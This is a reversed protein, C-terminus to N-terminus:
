IGRIALRVNRAALTNLLGEGAANGVRRAQQEDPVGGSFQIVVAGEEVVVTPEGRSGSASRGVSRATTMSSSGSLLVDMLGSQMALERARAPQSLPLVVEPGAEGIIAATARNVIGGDAFFNFLGGGLGSPLSPIDSIASALRRAASRMNEFLSAVRLGRDIIGKITGILDIGSKRLVQISERLARVGAAARQMAKVWPKVIEILIRIIIILLNIWSRLVAVAVRVALVALEATGMEPDVDEVLVLVLKALERALNVIEDWLDEFEDRLDALAPILENQILPWLQDRIIPVVNDKIWTWIVRLIGVLRDNHQIWLDILFIIGEVVFMTAQIAFPLLELMLDMFVGGLQEILPVMAETLRRFADILPPLAAEAIALWAQFVPLLVAAIGTAQAEIAPVLLEVIASALNLVMGILAAVPELLPSVAKLLSGLAGGLIALHPSLLILADSLDEMFERGGSDVLAILADAIGDFAAKAGPALAEVLDALPATLRGIAVAAAGLVPLLAQIVRDVSVFFDQIGAQAEFAESLDAAQEILDAVTDFLDVGAAHSADVGAAVLRFAGAVIRGLTDMFQAAQEFRELAEGSEQAAEAWDRFSEASRELDETMAEIQPAFVEVLTRLGQLFPVTADAINDFAAATHQFVLNLAEVTDRQALFKAFELVVSGMATSVLVMGARMPGALVSAVKTLVTELQEWFAQQVDIRISQFLPLLARFERVVAQAAPALNAIAEEFKESDEGAAAFADSMGFMAVSLTAAAVGVGALLAPVPLLLGLLEDTAAVAAALAITIAGGFLLIRSRFTFLVNSLRSVVSRVKKYADQFEDGIKRGVRRATDGSEELSQTASGALDKISKAARKAGGAVGDGIGDGLGSSNVKVKDVAKQLDKQLQKGFRSLDAVIEVEARGVNPM